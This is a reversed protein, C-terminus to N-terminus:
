FRNTASHRAELRSARLFGAAYGSRRAIGRSSRALSPGALHALTAAVNTREGKAGATRVARSWEICRRLFRAVIDVTLHVGVLVPAFFVVTAVFQRVVEVLPRQGVAGLFMLFAAVVVAVATRRARQRPRRASRRGEIIVTSISLALAFRWVGPFGEPYVMPVLESLDSGILSSGKLVGSVGATALIVGVGTGVRGALRWHHRVDHPQNPPFAVWRPGAM